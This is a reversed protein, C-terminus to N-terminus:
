AELAARLSIGDTPVVEVPRPLDAPTLGDLFRGDSLCVDPLLYRHGAPEETLVRRWTRAWWCAPSASTAGSSATRSRSSACTPAASRPRAAPRAGPATPAPSCASRRAARARPDRASRTRSRDRPRSRATVGSALGPRRGPAATVGDTRRAPRSRAVTRQGAARRHGASRGRAVHWPAPEAALARDPRDLPQRRGASSSPPSPPPWASATRTCRSARTPELPPFPRGALLYYEDAAFVMRRGLAQVSRRRGARSWTSWRQPRRRDHPRMRAEPNHASVGLPVVAVAALEPYEDLIGCLTDDLVAGDNVGPCVVVQGFCRSATTSCPGCGACPCGAAATACCTPACPRTPPTSRCTSRRSARPRRGARPRGRHLPHPHHLERLPVVAPLRRGEPLPQPAARAAVPLHLLVRLPQRM